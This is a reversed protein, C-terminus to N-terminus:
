KIEKIDLLGKFISNKEKASDGKFYIYLTYTHSTGKKILVENSLTFDTVPVQSDGIYLAESNTTDLKYLLENQEKFTNKVNKWKVSYKLNKSSKNTVVIDNKYITGSKVKSLQILKNNGYDISFGKTNVNESSSSGKFIFLAFIILVFIVIIAIIIKNKNIYNKLMEKKNNSNIKKKM